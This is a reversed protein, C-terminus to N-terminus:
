CTVITLFGQAVSHSVTDSLVGVEDAGDITNYDGHEVSFQAGNLDPNRLVERDMIETIETIRSKDQTTIKIM